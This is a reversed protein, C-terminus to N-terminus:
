EPKRHRDGLRFFRETNAVSRKAFEDFPEGRLEALFEATHRVFAPENPRVHRVPAPSLYPADTEVMLKDAPYTRAIAQLEAANKFTVIGTFSLWWGRELVDRAEEATGTFCHFVVPRDVMSASELIRMTDPYAERCHIIVPLDHRRAPELQAAFIRQQSPRDSFDYHYDLGMEGAAVIAPDALMGDLAELDADAAKGAEHPHVGVATFVGDHQRALAIAARADAVDTGITLVRMVGVQRARALVAEVQDSLGDFTLHCHSDILEISM